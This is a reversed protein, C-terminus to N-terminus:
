KDLIEAALRNAADELFQTFQGKGYRQQAAAMWRSKDEKKCRFQVQADKAEGEALKANASGLPAGRKNKKPDVM